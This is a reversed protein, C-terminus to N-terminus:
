WGMWIVFLLIGGLAGGALRLVMLPMHNATWRNFVNSSCDVFSFLWERADLFSLRLAEYQDPLSGPDNRTLIYIHPKIINHRV